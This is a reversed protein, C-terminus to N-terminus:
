KILNERLTGYPTRGKSSYHIKEVAGDVRLLLGAKDLKGPIERPFAEPNKRLFRVAAPSRLFVGGINTTSLETMWPEQAGMHAPSYHEQNIGDSHGAAIMRDAAVKITYYAMTACSRLLTQYTVEAHPLTIKPDDVKLRAPEFAKLKEWGSADAPAQRAWEETGQDLITGISHRAVGDCLGLAVRFLEDLGEPGGPLRLSYSFWDRDGLADDLFRQPGSFIRPSLLYSAPDMGTFVDFGADPPRWAEWTIVLDHITPDGGMATDGFASFIVPHDADFVFRLQGHQVLGEKGIKDLPLLTFEASAVGSLPVLATRLVTSGEFPNGGHNVNYLTVYGPKGGDDDWDVLGPIMAAAYGGPLVDTASWLRLPEDRREVRQLLQEATLERMVKPERQPDGDDWLRVALLGVMALALVGIFIKRV